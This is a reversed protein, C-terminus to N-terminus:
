MLACCRRVTRMESLKVYRWMWYEYGLLGKEDLLELQMQVDAARAVIADRLDAARATLCCMAVTPDRRLIVGSYHMDPAHSLELPHDRLSVRKHNCEDITHCISHCRWLGDINKPHSAISSYHNEYLVNILVYDAGHERALEACVGELAGVALTITKGHKPLNRTLSHSRRQLKGWACLDACMKPTVGKLYKSAGCVVVVYEDTQVVKHPTKVGMTDCISAFERGVDERTQLAHLTIVKMLQVMKLTCAFSLEAQVTYKTEDREFVFAADLSRQAHHFSNM